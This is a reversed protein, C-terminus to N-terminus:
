DNCSPPATSSASKTTGSSISQVPKPSRTKPHFTSCHPALLFINSIKDEVPSTPHHSLDLALQRPSTPPSTPPRARRPIPVLRKALDPLRCLLHLNVQINGLLNPELKLDASGARSVDKRDLMSNGRLFSCTENVRACGACPPHGEHDGENLCRTRLRRCRRCAIAGRKPVQAESAM